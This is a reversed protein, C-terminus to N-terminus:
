AAQSDETDTAIVVQNRGSRKAEYLATDATDCLEQLSAASDPDCSSTGISITTSVPGVSTTIPVDGIAARLRETAIRSGAADTGPMVVVFEEGGYRAALGSDGIQQELRRAVEEIVQVGVAHGM